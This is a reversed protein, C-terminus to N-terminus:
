ALRRSYDTGVAPIALPVAFNGTGSFMEANFTESIGRIAGGGQPTAIVGAASQSDGTM